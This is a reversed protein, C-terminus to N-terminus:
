DVLDPYLKKLCEPCMGHTFEAGSHDRIYSEIQNWYGKDDRIKKCYSCIPLLGRLTKINALAEQLEDILKEREEEMRKRETIDRIIGQYGLIDGDATRRVIATFLCEMETGDKKKLKIEYDRVFGEREIKQQFRFRDESHAYTERANLGIMEDRSYGFLDFMSQNADLIEGGQTTIFIVDRSGEFLTRYREESNRLAEEARKSDTVDQITARIGKISGKADRLLRDQVLAPFTTGDKRRYTREFGRAPPMIGALKNLIQQRAIDEEVIFKWPPQGIMEEVSYGLMELETRNVNTICGEANYEFYGIPADNYLEKFREQSKKLAEEAKKRETINDFVAVFYGRQIGYASISLWIKLPELYVEFKQPEGTLAARGYIEFLEPHSEKTSPIVESVRRGVVNKLGTLKEFANNVDLYEFDVPQDNEDFLMRCYAYGDLMNEFLSRYRKQSERLTEEVQTFDTIDRIVSVVRNIGESNEIPFYEVLLGREGLEPYIRKMEYRVAEGGFCTDLKKKVDKEFVDKGLIEAVSKGVVQERDMGCYKLYRANVLLYKYYQDVVAIMDQSNEIVKHYDQLIEKAHKHESVEVELEAVRQRLEMLEDM